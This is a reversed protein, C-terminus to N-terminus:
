VVLQMMSNTAISHEYQGTGCDESLKLAYGTVRLATNESRFTINQGIAEQLKRYHITAKRLCTGDDKRTCSCEVRLELYITGDVMDSSVVTCGSLSACRTRVISRFTELLSSTNTSTNLPRCAESARYTSQVTAHTRSLCRQSGVVAVLCFLVVSYSTFHTATCVCHMVM